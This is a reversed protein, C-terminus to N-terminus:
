ILLADMLAWAILAVGLAAFAISLFPSRTLGPRALLVAFLRRWVGMFHLGFFIVFVGGVRAILTEIFSLNQRGIQFVFATALLGLVVFIFTFGAVFALGHSFTIFRQGLSVSTDPRG